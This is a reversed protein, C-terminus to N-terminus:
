SLWDGYSNSYSDHHSVELDVTTRRFIVAAPPTLRLVEKIVADAYTMAELATPNLASGHTKIVQSIAMQAM